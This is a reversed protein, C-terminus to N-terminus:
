LEKPALMPVKIPKHSSYNLLKFNDISWEDFMKNLTDSTRSGAEYEATTQVFAWLDPAPFDNERSMLERAAEIQNDYLHVCKLSGEVALAKHGTLAELIKALLAYSAINFPLGLFTDVSRQNWHLEFGKGPIGVIQFGDHCPPLATQDLEAPNWANVKLRTSMINAEMGKILEAIQDVFVTEYDWGFGAYSRWQKSYNQGVYKHGLTKFVDFSKPECGDTKCMKVYWNYADQDWIHIGNDHLFTIDNDGRLFWILEGVVTKWNLKKLTIAPFGDQFAHRFTHSPIQLRRVGRSKDTYWEGESLIRNLLSKYTVDIEAM